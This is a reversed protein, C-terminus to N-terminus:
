QSFYILSTQFLCRKLNLIQNVKKENIKERLWLFISDKTVIIILDNPKLFLLHHPVSGPLTYFPRGGGKLRSHIM